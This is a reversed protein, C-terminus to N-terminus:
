FSARVRVGVVVHVVLCMLQCPLPEVSIHIIPLQMRIGRLHPCATYWDCGAVSIKPIRMPDRIPVTQIHKYVLLGRGNSM